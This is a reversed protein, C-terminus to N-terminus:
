KMPAKRKVLIAETGVMTITLGVYLWLGWLHNAQANLGSMLLPLFLVCALTWCILNVFQLGQSKQKLIMLANSIFPVVPFLFFLIVLYEAIRPRDSADFSADVVGVAVWSLVQFGSMPIGCFDGDLRYDCGYKAPVFIRDFMWPGTLAALFLLLAFLRIVKHTAFRNM